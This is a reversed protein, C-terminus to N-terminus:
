DPPERKPSHRLSRGEVLRFLEEALNTAHDGARELVQAILLVETSQQMRDIDEVALHRGLFGRYIRDIERDSSLVYNAGDLEHGELSVRLEKLMEELIDLMTALHRMDGRSLPMRLNQLRKGVGFLLDGIRELETGFRSAALLERAQLESVQSIASPLEEDIQQEIRDLEKECDRVALFAMPSSGLLFDKINFAADSAISCAHLALTSLEHIENSQRRLSRKTELKMQAARSVSNHAYM